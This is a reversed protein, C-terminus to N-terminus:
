RIGMRVPDALRVAPDEGSFRSVGQRFATGASTTATVSFAAAVHLISSFCRRSAGPAFWATFGAGQNPCRGHVPHWDEQVKLARSSSPPEVRHVRSKRM